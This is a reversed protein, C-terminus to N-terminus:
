EALRSAAFSRYGVAGATPLGLWAFLLWLTAYGWFTTDWPERWPSCIKRGSFRARSKRKAWYGCSASHAVSIGGAEGAPQIM